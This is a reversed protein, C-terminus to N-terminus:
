PANAKMMGLQAECLTRNKFVLYEIRGPLPCTHTATAGDFGGASQYTCSRFKGIIKEGIPTCRATQPHAWDFGLSGPVPMAPGTADASMAQIALTLALFSRYWPASHM